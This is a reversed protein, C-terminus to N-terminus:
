ILIFYPLHDSQILYIQRTNVTLVEDINTSGATFVLM